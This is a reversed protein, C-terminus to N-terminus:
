DGTLQRRLEGRDLLEWVEAVRDEEFLFFFMHEIAISRGTPDLGRWEGRHTGSLTAHVAARGASAVIAHIDFRFDPFGRHWERVLERLEGVTTIRTAGGVRFSFEDKFFPEITDFRQQNWAEEFIARVMKEADM